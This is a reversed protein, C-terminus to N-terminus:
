FIQLGGAYWARAAYLLEGSCVLGSAMLTAVIMLFLAAVIAKRMSEM